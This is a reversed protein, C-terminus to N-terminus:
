KLVVGKIVAIEVRRNLARNSENNNPVRPFREGLGNLSIRKADIGQSVLYNKVAIVRRDSLADNYSDAGVDDTHGQLDLRYDPNKKMIDALIDLDKKFTPSIEYTSSNFLIIGAYKPLNDDKKIEKNLKEADVRLSKFQEALEELTTGQKISKKSLYDVETGLEGVKTKLTDIDRSNDTIMKELNRKNKSFCYSVMFEHTAGSFASIDNNIWDYSYGLLLSEHLKVGGCFTFAYGSRYMAGLYAFDKYNFMGGLDIQNKAHQVLSIMMLPEFYLMDKKVDLKYKATFLYHQVPKTTSERNNDFYKLNKSIMQPVALGLNLRKYYYSIGASADFGMIHGDNQYLGPDNPDIVKAESFNISQDVYGAMLGFSIGQLEDIKLHYAYAFNISVRDMIGTKDSIIQAGLGIKKKKIAGDFTIVKTEPGGPMNTWQKRFLGSILPGDCNYGALSPNYLFPNFYYLSYKPIQQSFAGFTIALGLVIGIMRKTNM